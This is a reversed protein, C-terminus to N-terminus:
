YRFYLAKAVHVKVTANLYMLREKMLSLGTTTRNKGEGSSPLKVKKEMQMGVTIPNLKVMGMLATKGDILL